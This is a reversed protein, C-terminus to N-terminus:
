LLQQYNIQILISTGHGFTSNIEFDAGLQNARAKMNKLGIGFTNQELNFGVGNDVIKLSLTKKTSRLDIIVETASAHKLINNIAEQAIQFIETQTKPDPPPLLNINTIFDIPQIERIVEVLNELRIELDDILDNKSINHSYTRLETLGQQLMGFASKFVAQDQEDEFAQKKELKRFGIFSAVLLNQIGDHLKRSIKKHENSLIKNKQFNRKDLKVKIADLIEEYSFPKTIYDDAGLNMGKRIDSRGVNGSLFIFPPILDEKLCSKLADLLEFGNLEPMNVDSIILDPKEKVIKILGKLGNEAASVEYDHTELIDVLTDKVLVEDEIVLIKYM